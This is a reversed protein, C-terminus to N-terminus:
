MYVSQHWVKAFKESRGISKCTNQTASIVTNSQSFRSQEGDFIQTFCFSSCTGPTARIGRAPAM